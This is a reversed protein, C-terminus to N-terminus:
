FLKIKCLFCNGERESFAGSVLYSDETSFGEMKLTEGLLAEHQFTLHIEKVASQSDPLLDTALDAYNCNNLHNNQDLMSPYVKRRDFLEPDSDPRSLRECLLGGSLDPFAPIEKWLATPRLLSRKEFDVLAWLSMARMCEGEEDSLTFSRPFTVGHTPNAATRLVLEREGLVPRSFSLVMKSVVFAMNRERMDEYTIGFSNLDDRAAQQMRRMIASPRVFGSSTLDYSEFRIIEERM